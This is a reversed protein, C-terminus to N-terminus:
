IEQCALWWGPIQWPRTSNKECPQVPDVPLPISIPKDNVMLTEPHVQQVGWHLQQMGSKRM